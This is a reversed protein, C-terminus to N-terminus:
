KLETERNVNSEAPKIAFGIRGLLLGEETEVDVRWKGPTANRKYTFGRYGGDRGGTIEFGIRDTTLWEERNAAYQQWHHFM